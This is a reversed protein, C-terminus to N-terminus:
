APICGSPNLDAGTLDLVESPRDTGPPAFQTNWRFSGLQQVQSPRSSSSAAAFAEPHARSINATSKPKPAGKSTAKLAFSGSSKPTAKLSVSQSSTEPEVTVSRPASYLASRPVLRVTSLDTISRNPESITADGLEEVEEESSAEWWCPTGLPRSHGGTHIVPVKGPDVGFAEQHAIYAGRKRKASKGGRIGRRSPNPPPSSIM